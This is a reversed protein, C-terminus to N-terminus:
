QRDSVSTIPDVHPISGININSLVNFASLAAAVSRSNSPIGSGQIELPQHLEIIAGHTLLSVLLVKGYLDPRAPNIRDVTPLTQQFQALRNDLELWGPPFPDAVLTFPVILSYEFFRPTRLYDKSAGIQGAVRLAASYLAAAKAHM